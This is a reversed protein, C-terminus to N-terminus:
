IKIKKVYYKKVRNERIMSIEKNSSKFESVLSRWVDSIESWKGGWRMFAFAQVVWRAENPIMQTFKKIKIKNPIGKKSFVTEVYHSMKSSSGDDSSFQTSDVMSFFKEISLNDVENLFEEFVLINKTKFLKYVHDYNSM